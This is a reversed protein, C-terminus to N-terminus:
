ESWYDTPTDATTDSEVPSTSVDIPAFPTKEVPVEESLSYDESATDVTETEISDSKVLYETDDSLNEDFVAEIVEELLSEGNEDVSADDTKATAIQTVTDTSDTATETITVTENIAM